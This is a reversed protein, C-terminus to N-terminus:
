KKPWGGSKEVIYDVAAGIDQASLNDEHGPMMNHGSKVSDVLSKRGYNFRITWHQPIGLQPTNDANKSHCSACHKEYIAEGTTAHATGATIVLPLTILTIALARM